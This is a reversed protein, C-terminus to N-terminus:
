DRPSRLWHDCNLVVDRPQYVEFIHYCPAWQYSDGVMEEFLPRVSTLAERAALETEWVSIGLYEGVDYQGLYITNHFGPMQKLYANCIDAMRQAEWETDLGLTMRAMLAYM